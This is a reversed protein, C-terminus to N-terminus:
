NDNFEVTPKFMKVIRNWSNIANIAITLTVLSKDDFESALEQYFTDEIVEANTLKECLSLALREKTTYFTMDKWASLGIIRNTSEGSDTAQTTHMAICFACQNLQSARLKVLEWIKLGFTAEAQQKLLEEQGLLHQILQPAQNFYDARKM